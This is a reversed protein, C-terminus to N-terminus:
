LHPTTQRSPRSANPSCTSFGGGTVDYADSDAATDDAAKKRRPSELLISPELASLAFVENDSVKGVVHDGIDLRGFVVLSRSDESEM